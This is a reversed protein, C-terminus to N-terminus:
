QIGNFLSGIILGMVATQVVRAVYFGRMRLNLLGLRKFLLGTLYATSCPPFLHAHLVTLLPPSIRALM